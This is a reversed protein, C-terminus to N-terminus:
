LRDEITSEVAVALMQEACAEDVHKQIIELEGCLSQTPQASGNELFEIESQEVQLHRAFEAQCWGMRLRLSRIKDQSWSAKSENIINDM